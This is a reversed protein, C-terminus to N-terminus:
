PKLPFVTLPVARRLTLGFLEGRHDSDATGQVQKWDFNHVLAATAMHMIRDALPLGPCMRRGAGFPILEFDLGKFDIKGDLFREPVFSDPDKWIGADRGMAWANVLIQTGEPISYGGVEQDSEAKRPLLLPSPNHLRMAEKVVARLYPLRAIDPEELLKKEGAVRQLEAKAKAMKEPNMM